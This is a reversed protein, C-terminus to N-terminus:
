LNRGNLMNRIEGVATFLAPTQTESLAEVALPTLTAASVTFHDCTPPLLRMVEEARVTQLTESCFNCGLFFFCGVEGSRLRGEPVQATPRYVTDWALDTSKCAPCCLHESLTPFSGGPLSM